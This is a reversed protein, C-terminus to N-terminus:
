VFNGDNFRRATREAKEIAEIIVCSLAKCDGLYGAKVAELYKTRNKVSQFGFDPPVHGSQLAMMGAILRALRGNGERFPHVLLLEAHVEAIDGAIREIPGPRCPTRRCLVEREFTEMNPAVLDAPPWVFGTKSINVTRYRGAWPYIAGLFHAHVARILAVDIKSELTVRNFFYDQTRQLAKFEEADMARKSSIHLKNKLVSSGPEYENEVNGGTKYRAM